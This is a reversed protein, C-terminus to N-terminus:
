FCKWIAEGSLKYFFFFSLGLFQGVHVNCDHYISVIGRSNQCPYRAVATPIVASLHGNVLIIVVVKFM